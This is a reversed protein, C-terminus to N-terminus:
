EWSFRMDRSVFIEDFGLQGIYEFGTETLLAYIKGFQPSVEVGIVNFHITDFDVGMLVDYEAGEVDISMYDVVDFGAQKLLTDVRWCPVETTTTTFGSSARMKEIRQQGGETMRSPIGALMLAGHDQDGYLDSLCMPMLLQKQEERAHKCDLRLFEITGDHSFACGNVTRCERNKELDAFVTENPEIAIGRWKLVKEFFWTNSGLKGDYAGVDVFVGDEHDKFFWRNLYIDQGCQSFLGRKYREKSFVERYITRVSADPEFAKFLGGVARGEPGKVMSNQYLKDLARIEWISAAQRFVPLRTLNRRHVLNLLGRRMRRWPRLLRRRMKKLM